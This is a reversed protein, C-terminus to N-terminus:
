LGDACAPHCFAGCYDVGSPLRVAVRKGVVGKLFDFLTRVEKMDLLSM